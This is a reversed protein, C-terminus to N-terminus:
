KEHILVKSELMTFLENISKQNKDNMSEFCNKIEEINDKEEIGKIALQLLMTQEQLECLNQIVMEMSIHTNMKYFLASYSKDSILSEFTQEDISQLTKQLFTKNKFYPYTEFLSQLTQTFTQKTQNM